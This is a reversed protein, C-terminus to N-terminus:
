GSQSNAQLTLSFSTLPDFLQVGTYAGAAPIDVSAQPVQVALASGTLDFTGVSILGDYSTTCPVYLVGGSITAGGSPGWKALSASDFNDFLTSMAPYTTGSTAVTLTATDGSPGASPATLAKFTAAPVTTLLLDDRYVDYSVAGASDNWTLAVNHNGAVAALGTPVPPAAM